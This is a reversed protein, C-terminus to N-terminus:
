LLKIALAQVQPPGPLFALFRWEDAPWSCRVVTSVFLQRSTSFNSLLPIRVWARESQIHCLGVRGSELAKSREAM